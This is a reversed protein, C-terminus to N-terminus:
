AVAGVLVVRDRGAKKARYLAADASELLAEATAADAPCAAIGVSITLHGGPQLSGHPFPFAAVRARLREAITLAAPKDVDVLLIAFEEGGYRAVLDNVRREETLLTALQRLIEDGAPHGHRDNYLKFHDVDIMLFGLPLGTRQSRLTELALHERLYRHNYLGTLGDTIALQSLRHNAEELARTRERVKGDLERNWSELEINKTRLHDVLQANVRHLRFIQLLGEVTLRLDPEDWPKPIYRNLGARNIAAVVADLGAQGTLLIKTTSPSRRNIEELLEVGKMGPMIQDAIVLALPEGERELEDVLELADKASQAVSIECEKGFRVGLQQRLATLIGEEDDVCLIHERVASM